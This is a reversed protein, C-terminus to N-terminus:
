RPYLGMLMRYRDAIHLPQATTGKVGNVDERENPYSVRQGAVETEHTDTPKVAMLKYKV